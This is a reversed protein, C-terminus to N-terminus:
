VLLQKTWEIARGQRVDDGCVRLVLWGALLLAAHKQFDAKFRGKTRHAMGDVEVAFKRAPWCFDLEWDRGTIPFYNRQYDTIGAEGLQQVFRRELKSEKPMERKLNPNSGEMRHTRVAKNKRQHEALQEETWRVGNGM